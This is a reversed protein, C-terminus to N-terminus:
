IIDIVSVVLEAFVTVLLQDMFLDFQFNVSKHINKKKKKM